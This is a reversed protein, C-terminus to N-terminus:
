YGTADVAKGILQLDTILVDLEAPQLARYATAALRDTLSEILQKCRRGHDSLAGSEEVLGRVKMGAIVADIRRRGLHHIRGDEHAPQGDSLARLVHSEPGGIGYAMLAANHGDGRHERLLTAAHWLRAVPEDPVPLSRLAAFLTRGAVPASLAAKTAADAARIVAPSGSLTGLMRRTAEACGRHHAALVQEPSAKQWVRSIVPHLTRAARERGTPAIDTPALDTCNM